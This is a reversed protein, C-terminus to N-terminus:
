QRLEVEKMVVQVGERIAAAHRRDERASPSELGLFKLSENYPTIYDDHTNYLAQRMARPLKFYCARCHSMMRKKAAGCACTTLALDRFAQHKTVSM